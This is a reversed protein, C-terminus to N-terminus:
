TSLISAIAVAYMTFIFSNFLCLQFQTPESARESARMHRVSTSCTIREFPSFIYTNLTTCVFFKNRHKDGKEESEKTERESKRQRAHEIRKNNRM